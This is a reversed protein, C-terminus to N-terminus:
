RGHKDKSATDPACFAQLPSPMKGLDIVGDPVLDAQAYPVEISRHVKSWEKLDLKIKEGSECTVDRGRISNGHNDKSDALGYATAASGVVPVTRIKDSM